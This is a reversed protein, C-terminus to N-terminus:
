DTLTGFPEITITNAAINLPCDGSWSGDGLTIHLSTFDANIEYTGYTYAAITITNGEIKISEVYFLGGQNFTIQYNDNKHTDTLLKALKSYYDYDANSTGPYAYISLGSFVDDGYIVRNGPFIYYRDTVFSTETDLDICAGNVAGNYGNVSYRIPKIEYTGSDDNGGVRKYTGDENFTITGGGTKNDLNWTGYMGTMDAVAAEKVDSNAAATTAATEAFNETQSEAEANAIVAAETIQPKVEAETTRPKKTTAATTTAAPLTTVAAAVSETVLGEDSVTEDASGCASLVILIQAAALIAIFLRKMKGGFFLILSKCLHM